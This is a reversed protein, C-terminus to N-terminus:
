RGPAAGSSTGAGSAASAPSAIAPASAGAPVHVNRELLFVQRDTARIHWGAAITRMRNVSRDFDRKLLLMYNVDFEDVFQLLLPEDNRLRDSLEFYQDGYADIRTDIHPKLRPWARYILESGLELSNFVNGSVRPDAISEVMFSSLDTTPGSYLVAHRANGFRIGITLALLVFVVGAFQLRRDRASLTDPAGSGTAASTAEPRAVLRAVVVMAVYGFWVMHRIRQIALVGFFLVLLVDTVTLRRRCAAMTILTGALAAVFIWLMPEGRFMPTLTPMWELVRQRIAESEHLQFPFALLSLGYPNAVSLAVMALGTIAFPGGTDLVQRLPAAAPSAAIAAPARFATVAGGLAYLGAIVPGLLFSGHSNAWVLAIPLTWLLVVPRREARFRELVLLLTTMLILAWLEPRIVYRYNAVIMALTALLLAVAPSAGVRRALLWCLGLHLVSILGVVLPLGTTGTLRTIGHVIVSPLWEHATFPFDRAATFPFLLTSPIHGTETIIQGIKMQLWIDNSGQPQVNLVLMLLVTLVAALGVLSLRRNARPDSTVPAAARPLPTTPDTM